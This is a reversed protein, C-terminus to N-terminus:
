AGISIKIQNWGNSNVFRNSYLKHQNFRIKIEKNDYIKRKRICKLALIRNLRNSKLIRILNAASKLDKHIYM